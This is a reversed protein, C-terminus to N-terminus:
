HPCIVGTLRAVLGGERCIIAHLRFCFRCKPWQYTVCKWKEGNRRWGLIEYSRSHTTVPQVSVPQSRQHSEFLFHFHYLSKWKLSSTRESSKKQFLIAKMYQRFCTKWRTVTENQVSNVESVSINEQFQDILGSPLWAKKDSFLICFSTFAASKASRIPSDAPACYLHRECLFLPSKKIAKNLLPTNSIVHSCCNDGM